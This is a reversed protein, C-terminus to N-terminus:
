SENSASTVTPKTNLKVTLKFQTANADKNFMLAGIKSVYGDFALIDAVLAGTGDPDKPKLKWAVKTTTPVQWVKKYLARARSYNTSTYYLTINLEGEDSLPNPLFKKVGDSEDLSTVEVNETSVEGLEIDVFDAFAVYAQSAGDNTELTCKYGLYPTAM